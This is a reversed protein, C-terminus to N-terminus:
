FPEQTAPGFTGITLTSWNNEFSIGASSSGFPFTSRTTAPLLVGAWNASYKGDLLETESTLPLGEPKAPLPTLM